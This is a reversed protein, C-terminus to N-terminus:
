SQLSSCWKEVLKRKRPGIPQTCINGVGRLKGGAKDEHMRTEGTGRVLRTPMSPMAGRKQWLLKHRSM